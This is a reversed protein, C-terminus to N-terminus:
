AAYWSKTMTIKRNKPININELSVYLRIVAGISLGYFIYIFVNKNWVSAIIVM